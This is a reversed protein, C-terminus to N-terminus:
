FILFVKLFAVKKEKIFLQETSPYAENANAYHLIHFMLLQTETFSIVSSVVSRLVTYNYIRLFSIENKSM